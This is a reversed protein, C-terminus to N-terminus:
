SGMEIPSPYFFRRSGGRWLKSAKDAFARWCPDFVFAFRVQNYQAHDAVQWTVQILVDEGLEPSTSWCSALQLGARRLAPVGEERLLELMPMQDSPAVVFTDVLHIPSLKM